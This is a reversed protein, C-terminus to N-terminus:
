RGAFGGLLFRKRREKPPGENPEHYDYSYYGYGYGPAGGKPVANLVIGLIPANVRRLRDVAAALGEENTQNARAVVVTGDVLTGIVAADAVALIPPTDIIVSEYESRLQRLMDSFRDTAILEPARETRTGSPLIHLSDSIPAQKIAEELRVDGTLVDTLGPNRPVSMTEHVVPRRSDADILVTKLGQSAFSMALNAATTTKGASPESSTVALVQTSPGAFRISTRILRLAEQGERAAESGNTLRGLRPIQGLIELQTARAADWSNRITPDLKETAIAGVSGVLLGVALAAFLYFGLNSPDPSLPATAADIVEVDGVEVDEAIQAEFYKGVLIDFVGQVADVKQQYRGLEAGRSPLVGVEYRLQGIREEASALRSQLLDLSQEAAVRMQNQVSALLSDLVQVRPEQSTFGFRSATLRSREAELEQQRGHLAQGAPFIESARTMIEDLGASSGSAQASRLGVILSQLLGEEFRFQRIENETQLRASFLASGEAGPDLLEQSQQYDLLLNEAVKLSDALDVLQEAIVTRRRSTSERAARARYSQYSEAVTNTVAAARRPDPDTFGLRLLDPGKGREVKVRRQFLEITRQARRISFHIPIEAARPDALWLRFGPGEIPEGAYATAIKDGNRLRSLVLTEGERILAYARGPPNPDVELKGVIDTWEDRRNILRLQLGLSAVVPVIVSRSRIIEAQTGFDMRSGGGTGIGFLPIASAGSKQQLLAQATYHPLDDRQSWWALGVTIACSVVLLWWRRRLLAVYQWVERRLRREAWQDAEGVGNGSLSTESGLHRFDSQVLSKGREDDM